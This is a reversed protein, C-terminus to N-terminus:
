KKKWTDITIKALETNLKAISDITLTDLLREATKFRPRLMLPVSDILRQTSLKKQRVKREILIDSLM